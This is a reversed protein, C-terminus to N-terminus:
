FRIKKGRITSFKHIVDVLATKVKDPSHRIRDSAQDVLDYFLPEVQLSKIAEVDPYVPSANYKKY